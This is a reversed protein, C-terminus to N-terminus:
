LEVYASQEAKEDFAANNLPTLAYKFDPHTIRYRKDPMKTLPQGNAEAFERTRRPKGEKDISGPPFFYGQYLLTKGTGIYQSLENKNSITVIEDKTHVESM